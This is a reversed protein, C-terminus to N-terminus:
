RQTPGSVVNFQFQMAISPSSRPSHNIVICTPASHILPFRTISFPVEKGYPKPLTFFELVPFFDCNEIVRAREFSFILFLISVDGPTGYFVTTRRTKLIIREGPPPSSPRGIKLSPHRYNVSPLKVIQRDNFARHARKVYANKVFSTFFSFFFAHIFCM